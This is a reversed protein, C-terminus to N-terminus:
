GDRPTELILQVEGESIGLNRAITEVKWGEQKLRRVEDRLSSSLVDVKGRSGGGLNRKSTEDIRNLNEISNRYLENMRTEVGAVWERATQLKDIREEIEALSTDLTALEMSIKLAEGNEFKIKALADKVGSIDKEINAIDAKHTEIRQEADELKKFNASIGANTTEIINNRKEVRQYKEESAEAAEHLKRLKVQVQELMENEASIGTLKEEIDGAMKVLRNFNSEMIDIRKQEAFFRTMKASTQEEMRMVKEFQMEMGTLANKEQVLREIDAKMDEIKRTLEIRLNDAEGFLKAQESIDAMKEWAKQTETDLAAIKQATTDMRENAAQLMVGSKEGTEDIAARVSVIQNQVDTTFTKLNGEINQRNELLTESTERTIKEIEDKLEVEMNKRLEEVNQEMTDRYVGLDKGARDIEARLTNEFAELKERLREFEGSWKGGTEEVAARYKETMEADFKSYETEQTSKLHEVKEHLSAMISEELASIEGNLNVAAEKKLADFEATLSEIDTKAKDADAGIAVVSERIADSRSKVFTDLSEIMGSLSTNADRLREDADTGFRVIKEELAARYGDFREDGLKEANEAASKAAQDFSVKLTEAFHEVTGGVEDQMAKVRAELDAAQEVFREFESKAAGLREELAARYGDFKEDGLKGANEAAREFAEKLTEAFHEVTGDIEVQMVGVRAELDAAQGAFRDFENKIDDLKGQWLAEEEEAAHSIADRVGARVDEIEERIGAIAARNEESLASIGARTEESAKEVAERDGAIKERLARAKEDIEERLRDFLMAEYEGSHEGAKKVADEALRLVEKKSEGIVALQEEEVKQILALYSEVNNKAADAAQTLGDIKQEVEDRLVAATKRMGELLSETSKELKEANVKEFSGLLSEKLRGIERELADFRKRAAAVKASVGDVFVSEDRIRALNEEVAVSERDLLGLAAQFQQLREEIHKTAEEYGAFTARVDKLRFLLQEAAKTEVDLDIKFNELPEKASGALAKMEGMLKEGYKKVKELRKSNGMLYFFTCMLLCLVFVVIDGTSFIGM